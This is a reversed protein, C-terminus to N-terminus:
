EQGRALAGMREFITGQKMRRRRRRPKTAKTSVPEPKPGVLGREVLEAVRLPPKRREAKVLELQEREASM